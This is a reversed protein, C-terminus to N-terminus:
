SPLSNGSDGYNCDCRTLRQKGTSSVTRWYSGKGGCIQCKSYDREFGKVASMDPNFSRMGLRYPPWNKKEPPKQYEFIREAPYEPRSM